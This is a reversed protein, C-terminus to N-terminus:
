LTGPVKNRNHAGMMVTNLKRHRRKPRREVYKRGADSGESDSETSGEGRFYGDRDYGPRLYGSRFYNEEAM